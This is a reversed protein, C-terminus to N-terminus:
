IRNIDGKKLKFIDGSKSLQTIAEELEVDSLKGKVARELEEMPILKGLKGELQSLIGKVAIINGRKSATVGTTIRDIDFTKTEEDYGVQRLSYKLLDIAVKADESEVKSSFRLKAHAESLRILGELQRATIPIPKIGMDAKSSQNRLTIYFNKIEDIASGTLKPHIKQRAYAIYKRLLGREVVDRVDEQSDM